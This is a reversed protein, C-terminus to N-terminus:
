QILEQLLFAMQWPATLTSLNGTSYTEQEEPQPQNGHVHTSVFTCECQGVGAGFDNISRYKGITTTKGHMSRLLLSIVRVIRQSAPQHHAPIPYSGSTPFTLTGRAGAVRHTLCWAGTSTLQGPKAHACTALAASHQKHFAADAEKILKSDTSLASANVEEATYEFKDSGIPRPWLVAGGSSVLLLIM